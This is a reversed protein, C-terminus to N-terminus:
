KRRKQQIFITSASTNALEAPIRKENVLEHYIYAYLAIDEDVESNNNQHRESYEPSDWSIQEAHDKLSVPVQTVPGTINRWQGNQKYPITVYQGEHINGSINSGDYCSYKNGDKTQIVVKPAKENRYVKDVIQSIETTM